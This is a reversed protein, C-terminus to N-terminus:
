SVGDDGERVLDVIVKPAFETGQVLIVADKVLELAGPTPTVPLGLGQGKTRRARSSIQRPSSPPGSNGTIWGFSDLHELSGWGKKYAPEVRMLNLSPFSVECESVVDM